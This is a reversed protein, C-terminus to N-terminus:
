SPSTPNAQLFGDGAQVFLETPEGRVLAGELLELQGAADVLGHALCLNNLSHALNAARRADIPITRKLETWQETIAAPPGRSLLPQPARSSELSIRALHREAWAALTARLKELTIPKSIFGAMGAGLCEDRREKTSYATVAFVAPKPAPCLELIRRTLEVGNTDPLRYDTLIIDYGNVEALRLAEAGTTAWDVRYNMQALIHGLVIRNYDEDEIALARAPLTAPLAAPAATPQTDGARAFPLNLYFTTEGNASVAGVEGGMALAFKRCIALGLGTGHINREVASAGRTFSEFFQDLTEKPITPGASAVGITLRVGGEAPVLLTNVRAGPPVGYKLANTLYNALIQRLKGVDGALVVGRAPPDLFVIRGGAPDSSIAAAELADRLDFAVSELGVRGAEIRSFDLVDDVTGRLQDACHALLRIAEAQKASSPPEKGLIGVLGLVGNMPNRIEHSMSALFETKATSAEALARTRDAVVRELEAARQRLQRTRLRYLGFFGAGAIALSGAAAARTAYGPPLVTFAHAQVPGTRGLHKTRVELAYSRASLSPYSVVEGLKTSVWETETPLLRREFRPREGFEDYPITGSFGLSSAESPLERPLAAGISEAGSAPNRFTFTVRPPALRRAFDFAGTNLELIRADGCVTVSEGGGMLGHVESLQALGMAEVTEWAVTDGRQELRGLRRESDQEGVLWLGHANRAIEQGRIGPTHAVERYDPGYRVGERSSFILTGGIADLKAYAARPYTVVKTFAFPPAVTTRYLTGDITIAWLTDGVRAFGTIELSPGDILNCAGTKPDLHYLRNLTTSLATGDPLEVTAGVRNGATPYDREGLRSRGRFGFFRGHKMPIFEYTRPLLEHSGDDRFYEARDEYSIFLGGDRLAFRGGPAPIRRGYRTADFITVGEYSGIWLRGTRDVSAYTLMDTNLGSARTIQRIEGSQTDVLALGKSITTMAVYREWVTAWSIPSEQNLRRTDAM